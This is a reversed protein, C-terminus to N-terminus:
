CRARARPASRTLTRACTARRRARVQTTGVLSEFGRGWNGGLHPGYKDETQLTGCHGLYILHAGRRVGTNFTDAVRAAVEAPDILLPLAADDEIIITFETENTPPRVKEALPLDWYSGAARGLATVGLQAGRPHFSVRPPHGMRM